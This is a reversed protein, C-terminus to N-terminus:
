PNPKGVLADAVVALDSVLGAYAKDRDDARLV